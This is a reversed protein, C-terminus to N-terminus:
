KDWKILICVVYGKFLVLFKDRELVDVWKICLM